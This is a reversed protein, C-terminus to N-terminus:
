SSRDEGMCLMHDKPSVVSGDYPVEARVRRASTEKSYFFNKDSLALIKGPIRRGQRGGGELGVNGRGERGEM